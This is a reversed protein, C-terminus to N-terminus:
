EAAVAPVKVLRHALAAHEPLDWWPYHLALGAAEEDDLSPSFAPDDFTADVIHAGADTLRFRGEALWAGLQVLGKCALEFARHRMLDEAADYPRTLVSQLVIAGGDVSEDILHATNGLLRTNAALSQDIPNLGEFAPLISPHINFLRGRYADLLPGRLLRRFSATVIYDIGHAWAYALLAGSFAGNDAQPILHTAVGRARATVLGAARDSLVAHVRSAFRPLKLTEGLFAGGTTTLLLIRPTAATKTEHPASM